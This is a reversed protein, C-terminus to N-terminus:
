SLHNYYVKCYFQRLQIQSKPSRKREQAQITTDKELSLFVETIIEKFLSQRKFMRFDMKFELLNFEKEKLATGTEM